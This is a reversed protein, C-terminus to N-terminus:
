VTSSASTITPAACHLSTNSVLSTMPGCFSSRSAPSAAECGSAAMPTSTSESNPTSASEAAIRARAGLAV